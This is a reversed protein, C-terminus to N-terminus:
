LTGGPLYAYTSSASRTVQVAGSTRPGDMEWILRVLFSGENKLIPGVGLRGGAMLQLNDRLAYTLYTAGLLALRSSESTSAFVANAQREELYMLDAEAVASLKRWLQSYTAIRGRTFGGDPAGVHEGLLSIRYQRESGLRFDARLLGRPLAQRQACSGDNNCTEGYLRSGIEASLSLWRWPTWYTEFFLEQHKIDSFVAFISTRPIFLDPEAFRYGGFASVREHLDVRLMARAEKLRGATLEFTGNGILAARRIPHIAADWGLEHFALENDYRKHRYSAGLNALDLVRYGIRGGAVWNGSTKYDDLGTPWAQRTFRVGTPVGGFTTLDLGFPSRYHVFAGDLQELVSPGAAVFQRGLRLELGRLRSKAGARYSLYLANVDGNVRNDQLPIDLFQVSGWLSASLALGEVGMDRTELTLLEFFPLQQSTDSGAPYAAGRFFSQATFRYDYAHAASTSCFLAAAVIAIPLRARM